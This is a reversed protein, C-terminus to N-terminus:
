LEDHEESSRQETKQTKESSSEGSSGFSDAKQAEEIQFFSEPLPKKPGDGLKIADIWAEISRDTIEAGSYEKWWSRKFHIAVLKPMTNSNDNFVDRLRLVTPDSFPVAYIPFLKSQSKSYKSKITALGHLAATTSSLADGSNDEPLLLLVCLRKEPELCAEQLAVAGDLTEITSSPEKEQLKVPKDGDAVNPDPSEVISPEDEVVVSTAGAAAASAESSKHAASAESFTSEESAMQPDAKGSTGTETSNGRNDLTSAKSLFEMIEDKKLNGGYTQAAESGGALVILTPFSSIGFIGRAELANDKMQAFLITDKYEMALVKYLTSPSWKDSFLIAKTTGNSDELWGDLEKDDLRMVYNPIKDVVTDTIAKASRAGKYDEVLPQGGKRSPKVIKLTPFGKVGM